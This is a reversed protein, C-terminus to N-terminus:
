GVPLGFATMTDNTNTTTSIYFINNNGACIMVPDQGPRSWEGVVEITDTAPTFNADTTDTQLNFGKRAGLRGFQDIVAHNATEAYDLSQQLQPDMSNVGKFGAAGLSVSQLQKAM